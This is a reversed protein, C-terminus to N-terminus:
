KGRTVDYEDGLYARIVREDNVVEKPKGEMIKKGHHLIAIRESLSMIAHMVHEILFLSIGRERIRRLLGILDNTEKRTLGAMVEDLLLIIPDTSLTRALELRKRDAITLNKALYNKKGELGVEELIRTAKERADKLKNIALFCGVIVNDLVSMDNFPKVLQFTRALGKKCIQFPQLGTINEGNLLIKGTTPSLYGSIINFLTTKGAGNPGILGFIMGKEIDLSVDKVAELGGFHKSVNELKIIEM